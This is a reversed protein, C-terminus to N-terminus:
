SRIRIRNVGSHGRGLEVSQRAHGARRGDPRLFGLPDDLVGHGVLMGISFRGDYSYATINLDAPDLVPAASALGREVKAAFSRTPPM